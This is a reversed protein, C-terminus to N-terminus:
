APIVPTRQTEEQKTPTTERLHRKIWFMMFRSGAGDRAQLAKAESVQARRALEHQIEQKRAWVYLQSDM